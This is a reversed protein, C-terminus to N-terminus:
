ILFDFTLGSSGKGFHIERSVGLFIWSWLSLAQECSCASLLFRVSVSGSNESSREEFRKWYPNKRWWQATCSLSAPSSPAPPLLSPPFVANGMLEVPPFAHHPFLLPAPQLGWRALCTCGLFSFSFLISILSLFVLVCLFSWCFICSLFLSCPPEKPPVSSVALCM